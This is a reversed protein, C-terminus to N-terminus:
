SAAHERCVATIIPRGQLVTHVGYSAAKAFDEATRLGGDVWLQGCSSRLVEAHDALFRATSGERTEVRGGHNSIYIIDPRVQRATEIDEDTFIGKIAFPLGKSNCHRKLESLQAPSKKELKVLNRMTIINYADIDIGAIEAVGDTWELRSFFKENAYPKIFVAARIGPLEQQAERVAAIGYQLKCDPTGDGISLRIGKRVCHSILDFYLQREDGYGVNEVAGTVPALRLEPLPLLYPGAPLDKWAACNLIFNRNENPGGMGPM